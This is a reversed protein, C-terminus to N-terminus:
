DSIPFDYTVAGPVSPDPGNTLNFVTRPEGFAGPEQGHKIMGGRYVRGDPIVRGGGLEATWLGLDRFNVVKARNWYDLAM